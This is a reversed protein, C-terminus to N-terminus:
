HYSKWAWHRQKLQLRSANWFQMALPLDSMHTGELPKVKANPKEAKLRERYAAFMAQRNSYDSRSIYTVAGFMRAILHYGTPVVPREGRVLLHAKLGTEAAAAAVAATHASQVGGCALQM